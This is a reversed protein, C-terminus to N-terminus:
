DSSHQGKRLFSSLPFYNLAPFFHGIGQKESCNQGKASRTPTQCRWLRRFFEEQVWQLVDQGDDGWTQHEDTVVLKSHRVSPLAGWDRMKWWFDVCYLAQTLGTLIAPAVVSVSRCRGLSYTPRRRLLVPPWAIAAYRKWPRQQVNKAWGQNQISLLQDDLVFSIRSSSM